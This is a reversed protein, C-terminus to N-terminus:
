VHGTAKCEQGVYGLRQFYKGYRRRNSPIIKDSNVFKIFEEESMWLYDETEGEQLKVLTKDCDVTCVFNHFFAQKKEELSCNVEEFEHCSLGTEELLERAVCQWKDEGSLASGGATAEYWGGYNPKKESRKMCLYSGDAHRVLVECVLHYLGQPIEEGRVLTRGTLEEKKSYADWLEM